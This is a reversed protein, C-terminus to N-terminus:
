GLWAPWDAAHRPHHMAPNDRGTGAHRPVYPVTGPSECEPGCTMPPLSFAVDRADEHDDPAHGQAACDAADWRPADAAVISEAEGRAIAGSVVDRLVALPDAAGRAARRARLEAVMAARDPTMGAPAGPLTGCLCDPGTCAHGAAM